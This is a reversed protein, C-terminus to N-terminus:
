INPLSGKINPLSKLFVTILSPKKRQNEYKLIFGCDNICFFLMQGQAVRKLVSTLTFQM